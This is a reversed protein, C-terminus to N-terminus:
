PLFSNQLTLLHDVRFQDYQNMLIGVDDFHTDATIMYFSFISLSTEKHYLSVVEDLINLLEIFTDLNIHHDAFCSLSPTGRRINRVKDRSIVRLADDLKDHLLKEFLTRDYNHTYLQFLLRPTLKEPNLM